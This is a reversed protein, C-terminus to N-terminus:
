SSIASRPYRRCARHPAPSGAVSATVTYSGGATPQGVYAQARLSTGPKAVQTIANGGTAQDFFGGVIGAPNANTISLDFVPLSV